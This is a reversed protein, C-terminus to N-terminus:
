RGREQGMGYPEVHVLVDAVEPLRERIHQRVNTAIGHGESVEIRPNVEVHLEVHHQLGTKRAFCKEVGLVGPVEMAVNRIRRILQASPMTDILELSTERLVRCGTYIVFIGVIFGGYHDAALFRDPHYLTLALACLAATASLIDVADNWADAVLSSSGIRRGTRFKFTSMSGRIVIAALLPWISYLKPPPHVETIKQLSRFCIGIGGAALIVGVSLGALIEIRGHGYPHDEDPPKAALGMAVFVLASALVDGLFEFGAALVSTSDAAYGIWINFAALLVSAAISAGAVRRGLLLSQDNSAM